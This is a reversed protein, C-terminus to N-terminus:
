MRQLYRREAEKEQERQQERLLEGAEKEQGRHQEQLLEEPTKVHVPPIPIISLALRHYHHGMYVIFFLALYLLGILLLLSSNQFCWGIFTGNYSTNATFPWRLTF